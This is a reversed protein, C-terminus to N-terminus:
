CNIKEHCNGLITLLCDGFLTENGENPIYEGRNQRLFDILPAFGTKTCIGVCGHKFVIKYIWDLDNGHEVGNPAIYKKTVIDGEFILDGKTDTVGSCREITHRESNIKLWFTPCNDCDIEVEVHSPSYIIVNYFYRKYYNDWVRIRLNNDLSM